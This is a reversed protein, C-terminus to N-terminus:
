IEIDRESGHMMQISVDMHSPEDTLNIYEVNRVLPCRCTTTTVQVTICAVVTVLIIWMAPNTLQSSGAITQKISVGLGKCGIVSISGADVVRLRM